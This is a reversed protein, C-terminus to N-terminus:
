DSYLKPFYFHVASIPFGMQLSGKPSSSTLLGLDLLKRILNRATRESKNILNTVAGRSIEGHLFITKLLIASKEDINQTKSLYAAYGEIRKQLTDLELLSSMFQIQDICVELFFVSFNILGKLSLNGRGDLDGQCSADANSLATMYQDRHKSLGRSLTWLGHSDLNLRMCYADSFLRTVRGNGDLFPHIWALRHHSAALGLIQILGKLQTPEYVEQFRKLFNDLHIPEPPIHSGVQVLRTRFQGPNVTDVLESDSELKKLSESLNEYFTKHIWCLFTSSCIQLNEEEKLKKEISEQTYIHALSEEQLARKIPDSSFDQKLAKQIDLPKTKHGEILNSYYCNMERTLQQVRARTLPHIMAGLKSSQRILELCLHELEESLPPLLPEMATPSTYSTSTM